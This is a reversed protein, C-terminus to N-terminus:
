VVPRPVPLLAPRNWTVGLFLLYGMLFTAVLGSMWQWHNRESGKPLQAVLRRVPVMAALLIMAGLSVFLRALYSWMGNM